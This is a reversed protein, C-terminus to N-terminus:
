DSYLDPYNGKTEMYTEYLKQQEDTLLDDALDEMPICNLVVTCFTYSYPVQVEYIYPILYIDGTNPDRYQYYATRTETRYRTEATVTETLEYQLNFINNLIGQVDSLTYEGYVASLLSTLVYPDHGLVTGTIQYEDYRPYLSEYNDIKEQLATEMDVYVSEVATMDEPTSQYTTTGVSGLAGQFMM